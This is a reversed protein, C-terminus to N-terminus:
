RASGLREKLRQLNGPMEKQAARRVVLPVLLKGVGHGEFDVSITLRSRTPDDTADVTVDVIARIPGEIGHVSWRKPPELTTVEATSPREAFGIRRTTTCKSGLATPGGDMDGRVVGQQWEHFRSPDTAYNFVEAPPRNVDVTCVIPAILRRRRPRLGDATDRRM